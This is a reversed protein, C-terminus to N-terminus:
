RCPSSSSVDTFEVCPFHNVPLTQIHSDVHQRAQPVQSSDPLTPLSFFSLAPAYARHEYVQRCCHSWRTPRITLNNTHTDLHPTWTHTFLHYMYRSPNAKVREGEPCKTRGFRKAEIKVVALFECDGRLLQSGSIIQRSAFCFILEVGHIVDGIGIQENNWNWQSRTLISTLICFLLVDWSKWWSKWWGFSNKWSIKIILNPYFIAFLKEFRKRCQFISQKM